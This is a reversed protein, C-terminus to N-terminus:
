GEKHKFYNVQKERKEAGKKSDYCGLNRGTKAVLCYQGDKKRIVEFLGRVVAERLIQRVTTTSSERLLGEFMESPNHQRSIDKGTIKGMWQDRFKGALDGDNKSAKKSYDNPIKFKKGGPMIVELDGQLNIKKAVIEVWTDWLSKSVNAETTKNMAAIQRLFEVYKEAMKVGGKTLQYLNSSTDLKKGATKFGVRGDKDTKILKGEPDLGKYINLNISDICGLRGIILQSAFAAKPLGLGPVRLFKLYTNFMAEEKEISGSKANNYKNIDSMISSYMKGRNNWIYDIARKRFGLILMKIPQPFDQFEEGTLLGDNQKIYKMLIPFRPVVEYWRQQQTAIVFILMEALNEPSEQAYSNITPNYVCFGSDGIDAVNLVLPDPEDLRDEEKLFRKWSELLLKM